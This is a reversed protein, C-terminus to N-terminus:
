QIQVCTSFERYQGNESRSGVDALWVLADYLHIETSRSYDMLKLCPRPLILYVTCIYYLTSVLSPSKPENDFLKISSDHLVLSREQLETQFAEHVAFNCWARSLLDMTESQSDSVDPKSKFDM